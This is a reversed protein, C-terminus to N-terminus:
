ELIAQWYLQEDDGFDDFSLNLFKSPLNKSYRLVHFNDFAKWERVLLSEMGKLSPPNKLFEKFKAATIKGDYAWNDQRFYINMDTDRIVPPTRNIFANFAAEDIVYIDNFLGAAGLTSSTVFVKVVEKVEMSKRKNLKKLVLDINESFYNANVRFKEIESIIKSNTKAHDKITYPPIISKCEVIFLTRNLIFVLDSERNNKKNNKKPHSSIQESHIDVEQLKEKLRYEFADGKFNVQAGHHTLMSVLAIEPALQFTISPILVLQGNFSILPNDILDKSKEDFTFTEIIKKAEKETISSDYKVLEKEWQIKSKVVCLETLKKIDRRKKLQKRAQEKIFLYAKMWKKISVKWIKNDMNETGLMRQIQISSIYNAREHMTDFHHERFKLEYNIADAMGALYNKERFNSILVSKDFNTDVIEIYLEGNLEEISVDSFCFYEKIDMLVDWHADFSFHNSATDIDTESYIKSSVNFEVSQKMFYKVVHSVFGIFADYINMRNEINDKADIVEVNKNFPNSLINMYVEASVILLEGNIEQRTPNAAFYDDRYSFFHSELKNILLVKRKFENWFQIDNMSGKQEIEESLRILLENKLSLNDGILIGSVKLATCFSEIGHNFYNTLANEVILGIEDKDSLQKRFKFLDFDASYEKYM